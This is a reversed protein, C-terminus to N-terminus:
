YQFIKKIFYHEIVKKVVLDLEENKVFGLQQFFTQIQSMLKLKQFVLNLTNKM